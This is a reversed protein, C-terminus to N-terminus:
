RAASRAVMNASYPCPPTPILSEKRPGPSACRGGVPRRSRTRHGGADVLEDGLYPGFAVGGVGFARDISGRAAHFGLLRFRRNGQVGTVLDGSPTMALGRFTRVSRGSTSSPAATESALTSGAKPTSGSWRPSKWPGTGTAGPATNSIGWLDIAAPKIHRRASDQRRASRGDLPEGLRGCTDDPLFVFVPALFLGLARAM